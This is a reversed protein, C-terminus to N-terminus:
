SGWDGSSKSYQSRYGVTQKIVNWNCDLVALISRRHLCSFSFHVRKPAYKLRVNHYSELNGTHVYHKVHELDNLFSKDLVIKKPAYYAESGSNLWLKKSKEEENLVANYRNEKATLNSILNGRANKELDGKVMGKQLLEFDVIIGRHLDVLSYIVYKACFGPSDYQGDGALWVNSSKQLEKLNTERENKWVSNIVPSIISNVIKDYTTRSFMAIDLFRCFSKNKEFLIGSLYLSSSIEVNREPRKGFVPHSYWAFVNGCACDIKICYYSM